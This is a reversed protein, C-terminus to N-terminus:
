DKCRWEKITRQEEPKYAVDNRSIFISSIVSGWVTQKRVKIRMFPGRVLFEKMHRKTWALVEAHTDGYAILEPRGGGYYTDGCEEVFEVRWKGATNPPKIVTIIINEEGYKATTDKTHKYIDIVLPSLFYTNEFSFATQM